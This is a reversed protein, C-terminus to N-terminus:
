PQRNKKVHETQSLLSSAEYGVEDVPGPSNKKIREKRKSGPKLRLAKLKRVIQQMQFMNATYKEKLTILWYM